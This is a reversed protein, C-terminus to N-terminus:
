KLKRGPSFKKPIVMEISKINEFFILQSKEKSVISVIKNDEDLVYMRADTFLSATGDTFKIFFNHTM